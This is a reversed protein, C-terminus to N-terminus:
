SRHKRFVIDFVPQWSKGRDRSTTAIERVGDAVPEWSVRIAADRHQRDVGSLLIRKGQPSGEMVLLQGHNTVWTQHWLKRAQDYMTFSQGNLGDTQKYTERLVCGGLIADVHNRAVPPKGPADSDFTDWDGLWFDFQRYAPDKCHAPGAAAHVSGPLVALGIGAALISCAIRRLPLMPREMPLSYNVIRGLQRSHFLAAPEHIVATV